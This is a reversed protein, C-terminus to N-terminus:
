VETEDLAWGCGVLRKCPEGAEAPAVARNQELARLSFDGRALESGFRIGTAGLTAEALGYCPRWADLNFGYPAFTTTFRDLTDSRVNEAGTLVIRLSSLDLNGADAAAFKSVCLDFAFNPAGTTTARYRSIALLWRLPHQVFALPSMLIAR